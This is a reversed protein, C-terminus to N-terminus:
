RVALSLQTSGETTGGFAATVTLTYNGAPTAAAGNSIHTSGSGGCAALGLLVMAAVGGLLWRRRSRWMAMLLGLSALGLLLVLPPVPEDPLPLVAAAATTTVKVSVPTPAVGINAPNPSTACAAGAPAGSCTLTVTGIFGSGSSLQM